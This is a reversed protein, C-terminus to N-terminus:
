PVLLGRGLSLWLAEAALGTTTNDPGGGKLQGRPSMLQTAADDGRHFYETNALGGTVM